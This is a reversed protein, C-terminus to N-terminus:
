REKSDKRSTISYECTCKNIYIIYLLNPAEQSPPCQFREKQPQTVENLIICELYLWKGSLKTVESKNLASYYKM